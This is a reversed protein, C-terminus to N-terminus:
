SCTSQTSGTRDQVLLQGGGAVAASGGNVFITAPVTFRADDRLTITGGAAGAVSGGEAFFRSPNGFSGPTVAVAHDRFLLNGGGAGVATGGRATIEVGQLGSITAANAFALTSGAVGAVGAGNIFFKQRSSTPGTPDPDNALGLGALTLTVGAAGAGAAGAPGITIANPDAGNRFTFTDLSLDYDM